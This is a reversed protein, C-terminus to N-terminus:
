RSVGMALREALTEPDTFVELGEHTELWVRNRAHVVDDADFRNLYVLSVRGALADVSLRVANIAGLGADAVLVVLAPSCASVLAVTDGDCALPSRVGGASEVLVVGADNPPLEHVLDAITFSPRDLLEAAIPPAMAMPLWRHPQCVLEAPEGSAEGLVHADTDADDPDFSQVPKRVRVALQRARLRGAVAATVFTKGVGTGTGTVLVIV